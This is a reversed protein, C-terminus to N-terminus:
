MPFFLVRCVEEAVYCRVYHFTIEERYKIKNKVPKQETDFPKILLLIIYHNSQYTNMFGTINQINLNFIRFKQSMKIFSPQLDFTKM